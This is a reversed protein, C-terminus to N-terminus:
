RNNAFRGYRENLVSVELGRGTAVALSLFPKAIAFGNIKKACNANCVCRLTSRRIRAKSFSPLAHVQKLSYIGLKKLYREDPKVGFCDEIYGQEPDGLDLTFWPHPLALRRNGALLVRAQTVPSVAVVVRMAEDSVREFAELLAPGIVEGPAVGDTRLLLISRPTVLSAVGADLPRDGLWVPDDDLRGTMLYLGTERLYKKHQM